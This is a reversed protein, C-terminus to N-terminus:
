RMKYNKKYLINKSLEYILWTLTNGTTDHGAVSFILANGLM